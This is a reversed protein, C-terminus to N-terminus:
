HSLPAAPSGHQQASHDAAQVAANVSSTCRGGSPANLAIRNSVAMVVLRSRASWPRPASGEIPPRLRSLHDRACDIERELAVVCETTTAHTYRASHLGCHPCPALRVVNLSEMAPAYLAAVQRATGNSVRM